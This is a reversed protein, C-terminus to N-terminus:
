RAYLHLFELLIKNCKDTEELMGMHASQRLIHVHSIAPIHCQALSNEFPIAKDHEGIIFLVPKATQQLLAIRDPRNIMAEYYEMLTNKSFSLGKNILLGPWPSIDPQYFLGPISTELFAAVGNKNIFGILKKRAEIKEETDAFASSHFLGFSNLVGPYKEALALTIYGGMSHGIVSCFNKDGSLKNKEQEVTIIEKIVDAYTEISAHHLMESQGSGPLDPIVLQYYNKLHDIQPQWISGDESFGHLLVVMKGKGTVQYSVKTDKFNISLQL